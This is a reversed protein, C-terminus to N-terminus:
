GAHRLTSAQNRRTWQQKMVARVAEIAESTAVARTCQDGQDCVRKYCPGCEVKAVLKRGSGYLEIEQACTPGFLVVVGKSLAIAVHMAMTDGCLLTDCLDILAVFSPEDYETGPDILNRHDPLLSLIREILPREAPGGLLLIQWDKEEKQLQKIFEVMREPPWMKNAFATGAGVNIGLTPVGPRWSLCSLQLSVRDRRTQNVPLMYRDGRYTLGLAEHVLQPYSKTNQHFKIQDCLGLHFYPKAELNIPVPKGQPSLGFGLKKHAFIANALACPQPEKDLNIALDFSEQQLMLLNMPEFAMVRDIWPHGALMRCGNPLTVWTVHAGPYRRRLEPLLCLTRIVDGLAGLKIICLRHEYPEYHDCGDCLRNHPCPKDGRFHRCDPALTSTPSSRAGAASTLRFMNSKRVSGTGM